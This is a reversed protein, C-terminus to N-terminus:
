PGPLLADPGPRHDLRRHSRRTPRWRRTRGAASGLGARLAPQRPSAPHPPHRTLVPSLDVGLYNISERLAGLLRAALRGTGCGFEFITQDRLHRKRASRTLRAPTRLLRYRLAKPEAKALNGTLALLRLWAVLDAAIACYL